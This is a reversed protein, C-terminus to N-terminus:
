VPIAGSFERPRIVGQFLSGLRRVRVSSAHAGFTFLRITCGGWGPASPRSRNTPSRRSRDTGWSGGWPEEGLIEKGVNGQPDAYSSPSSREM